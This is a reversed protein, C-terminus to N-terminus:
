NMRETETRGTCPDRMGTVYPTHFANRESEKLVNLVYMLAMEAIVM